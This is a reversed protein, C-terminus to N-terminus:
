RAPEVTGELPARLADVLQDLAGFPVSEAVPQLARLRWQRSQEAAQRGTETLVAVVARRDAALREREILGRRELRDLRASATAVSSLRQKALDGVRVPGDAMLLRLVQLDEAAGANLQEAALRDARNLETQLAAITDALYEAADEAASSGELNDQRLAGDAAGGFLDDAPPTKSTHAAPKAATPKAPAPPNPESM